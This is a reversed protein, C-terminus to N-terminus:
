RPMPTPMTDIIRVVQKDAIFYRRVSDSVARLRITAPILYLVFFFNEVLGAAGGFRDVALEVLRSM